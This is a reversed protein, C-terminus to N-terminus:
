IIYSASVSVWVPQSHPFPRGHQTYWPFVYLATLTGPTVGLCAYGLQSSHSHFCHILFSSGYLPGCERLPSIMTM